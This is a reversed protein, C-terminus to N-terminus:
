EAAAVVAERSDSEIRVPDAILHEYLYRLRERSAGRGLGHGANPYFMLDFRCDHEHFREVLQWVNNPHVNDDMMGHQLLLRGELQDAYTLCSGLDYNEENDAPLGMYRETYITDYNRWDTVPAGAVAVQFIEPYKLIALASMYGGYSHGYIGVRNEDVYPRQALWRAGDAQDQIDVIGLQRYVAGMFAKGRGSTGRNDIRAVLVGLDCMSHTLRFRNRVARSDPGGYVDIVLPYMQSPDFDRPKYLVGYLDTVGDAAKFTFLEALPYGAEAVLDPDSAALTAIRNGEIDYLATEPPQSVTEYRTIFREGDPSFTISHSAPERTLRRPDKGDLNVRFLHANLPHEGGYAMYYLVGSEEDVREISVVPYAGRTLPNILRGDLDRLEYQRWGTKETEWIFRHGDDLFRMTPHNDQWTEQRETVVIRSAGTTPDSAVVHLVHQLRDTQNFLIESGDPTFRVDYLYWEEDPDGPLELRTTRGTGLDFVLLAAKPNPEGAKSYGESIPNTRLDTWGNVLYFDVVDREDFEYFVLKSSDPSWWMARTQDLEEGYV